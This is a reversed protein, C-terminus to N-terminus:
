LYSKREKLQRPGERAQFKHINVTRPVTSVTRAQGAPSLAGTGAALCSSEGWSERDEGM